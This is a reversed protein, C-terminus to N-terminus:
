FILKFFLIKLVLLIYLFILFVWKYPKYYKYFQDCEFEGRIKTDTMTVKIFNNIDPRVDQIVLNIYNRREENFYERNTYLYSTVLDFFDSNYKFADFFIKQSFIKIISETEISFEMEYIFKYIYLLNIYELKELKIIEEKKYIRLEKITFIIDEKNYISESSDTNICESAIYEVVDTKKVYEVSKKLNTHNINNQPFNFEVRKRSIAQEYADHIEMFEDPYEEPHFERIKNAYAIKIEKLSASSSIELIEYIDRYKKM